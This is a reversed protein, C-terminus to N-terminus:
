LAVLNAEQQITIILRQWNLPVACSTAIHFVVIPVIPFTHFFSDLGDMEVGYMGFPLLTSTVARNTSLGAKQFSFCLNRWKFIRDEPNV